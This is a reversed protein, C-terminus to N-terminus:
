PSVNFSSNRLVGRRKLDKTVEKMVADVLELAINIKEIGRGTQSEGEQSRHELKQLFENVKIEMNNLMENAKVIVEEMNELIERSRDLTHSIEELALEQQHQQEPRIQQHRGRKEENRSLVKARDPM